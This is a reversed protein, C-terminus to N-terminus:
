HQSFISWLHCKIITWFDCLTKCSFSYTFVQIARCCLIINWCIDYSEDTTDTQNGYNWAACRVDIIVNNPRQGTPLIASYVIRCEFYLAMNDFICVIKKPSKKGV